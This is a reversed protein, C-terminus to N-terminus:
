KYPKRAPWLARIYISGGVYRYYVQWDGAVFHRHGRFVRPGTHRVPYMGPFAQLRNLKNVILAQERDPLEQFVEWVPEPWIIDAM